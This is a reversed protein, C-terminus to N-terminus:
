PLQDPFRAFLKVHEALGNVIEGRYEVWAHAEFPFLRVGQCYRVAIARRRCLCYLALSQELCRARGPYFAGALSVAYDFSRVTELEADEAALIPAIASRVRAITAEFGWVRLLWKVWALTAGCWLVSPVRVKRTITAPPAARGDIRGAGQQGGSCEREAAGPEILQDGLWSTLQRAVDPLVQELPVAYERCLRDVIQGPLLGETLSEWVRTAVPNLTVYQERRPDYLAMADLERAALVGPRPRLPGSPLTSTPERSADPWNNAQQDLTAIDPSM